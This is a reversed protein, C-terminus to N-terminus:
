ERFDGISFVAITGPGSHSGIVTGTYGIIVNTNKGFIEKMKSEAYKADEFCDGHCIAVTSNDYKADFAKKTNEILKDISQKRGRIKGIPVLRGQNDVHLIPKIGLISGAITAMKSVRGGRHLYILDSVTFNHCIHLKLEEVYDFLEAITAGENKKECAKVVLLGEGLSACKSDVIFIKSDPYTISLTDKAISASNYTGSLASSFAIYFIDYGDKLLPEFLEEFKSPNPQSTKTVSGARMKDYFQSYTMDDGQYAVGDVEYKLYIMKLGYKDVYEKPLDCTDDTVIVYKRDAM